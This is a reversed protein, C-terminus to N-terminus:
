GERWLGYANREYGIDSAYDLALNFPLGWYTLWLPNYCSTIGMEMEEQNSLFTANSPSDMPYRDLYDACSSFLAMVLAFLIYNIKRM